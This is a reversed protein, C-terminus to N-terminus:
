SQDTNPGFYFGFFNDLLRDARSELKERFRWNSSPEAQLFLLWVLSIRSLYDMRNLTRGLCQDYLYTEDHKRTLSAMVGPLRPDVRVLDYTKFIGDLRKQVEEPRILPHQLLYWLDSDYIAKTGTFLPHQDVAAVIEAMNRWRQDRGEPERATKRMWEFIRPRDKGRGRKTLGYETWAFEYDLQYDTMDCSRKIERYWSWVKAREAWHKYQGGRKKKM